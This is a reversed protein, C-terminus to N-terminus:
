SSGFKLLRYIAHHYANMVPHCDGSTTVSSVVLVSVLVLILQLQFQLFTYHNFTGCVLVHFLHHLFSLYVGFNENTRNTV